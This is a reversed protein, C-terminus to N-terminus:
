YIIMLCGNSVQITAKKNIFENSVGLPFNNTLMAESIEYKLGKISVGKSIPEYSFISIYGSEKILSVKENRIFFLEQEKSYLHIDIGNMKFYYADQITAIEHDLRGNLCGYVDFRTYGKKMGEEIAVHTDTVDKMVNLKVVNENTPVYKLSDFDGVVLNPKINHDILYKYGLDSAIIYDDEEYNFDRVDLLNGGVIICKGM